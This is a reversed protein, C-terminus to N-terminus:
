LDEEEMLQKVIESTVVGNGRKEMLFIGNRVKPPLLIFGTDLTGYVRSFSGKHKWHLYGVLACFLADTKEETDQSWTESLLKDVEASVELKSFTTTLSKRIHAQLKSFELNISAKIGKKYKLIRELYFLRVMGAHPYTEAALRSSKRLDFDIDYGNEKLLKAVRLPRASNPNSTNSSHCCAHSKWYESSIEKEVPRCGTWNSIILPADIILLSCHTTPVHKDLWGLLEADGKTLATAVISGSDRYGRIICVGDSEKEGWALDIGVIFADDSDHLSPLSISM